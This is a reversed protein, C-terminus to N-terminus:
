QFFYEVSLVGQKQAISVIHIEQLFAQGDAGSM